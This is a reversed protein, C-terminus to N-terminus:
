FPNIDLEQREKETLSMFYDADIHEEIEEQVEVELHEIHRYFDSDYPVYRGNAPDFKLECSGIVGVYPQERVKKTYLIAKDPADTQYDRYMVLCNDVQNAWNSGGSINYLDPVKVKGDKDYEMVKPHAVVCVKCMHEHKFNNIKTLCSNLYKDDRIKERNAEEIRNWPDIVLANIGYRFILDKAADLIYDLTFEKEPKIFFVKDSLYKKALAVEEKSMREHVDMQHFPKGIYLSALKGFHKKFPYNEPSFVAVRWGRRTILRMMLYDLTFSKGHNPVGTVVTFEGQKFTFIDDIVPVDIKAGSPIGNEYYDDIETDIDAIEFVGDIPYPKADDFSKKLADKDYKILVDNADKCDEPLEIIMCKSAGLRRALEEKLKTGPADTDLSLYFTDIHQLQESCNNLYEFQATYNSATVPPAGNPVSVCNTFGAEDWSLKDMEGECIICTNSHVVDDIGYLIPECNKEQTFLKDRTRYKVSVVEDNRYYKFAIAGLEKGAQPFYKNSYGIKNRNIVFPSIGREQVFWNMAQKPLTREKIKPLEYNKMIDKQIPKSSLSGRFDCHKCHFLGNELNVYLCKHNKKKRTHSCKPCITAHEGTTKNTNIEINYKNM